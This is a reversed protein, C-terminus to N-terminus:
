NLENALVELQGKAEPSISRDSLAKKLMYGAQTKNELGLYAQAAHVYLQWPLRTFAAGTVKEARWIIPPIKDYQMASGLAATLEILFTSDDLGQRYLDELLEARFMADEPALLQGALLCGMWSSKEKALKLLEEGSSNAYLSEFLVYISDWIEAANADLKLAATAWLMCEDSRDANGTLIRTMNIYPALEAPELKQAKVFSDEATAFDGEMMAASGYSLLSKFDEDISINSNQKRLYLGVPALDMKVLEECIASFESASNLPNESIYNELLKAFDNKQSSTTEANSESDDGLGLFRCLNPGKSYSDLLKQEKQSINM